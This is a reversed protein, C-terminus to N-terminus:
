YQRSLVMDYYLTAGTQKKNITFQGKLFTLIKHSAIIPRSFLKQIIYLLVWRLVRSVSGKFTRFYFYEYTHTLTWCAWISQRELNNLIFFRPKILPCSGPCLYYDKSVKAWAPNQTRTVKGPSFDFM